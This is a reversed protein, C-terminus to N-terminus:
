RSSALERSGFVIGSFICRQIGPWFKLYFALSSFWISHWFIHWSITLFIGSLADALSDSYLGSVKSYWFIHWISHFIFDSLIDTPPSWKFSLIQKSTKLEHGGTKEANHWENTRGGWDNMWDNMWEQMLENTRENTWENMWELMCHCLDKYTYPELSTVEGCAVQEVINRGRAPTVVYEPGNCIACPFTPSCPAHVAPCSAELPGFSRHVSPKGVTAVVM